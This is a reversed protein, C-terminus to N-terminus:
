KGGIPLSVSHKEMHFTCSVTKGNKLVCIGFRFESDLNGTLSDGNLKYPLSMELVQETLKSADKTKLETKELIIGEGAKVILKNPFLKNTKYGKYATVTFVVKRQGDKQDPTAITLSYGKGKFSQKGKEEASDVAQCVILPLSVLCLVIAAFILKGKM